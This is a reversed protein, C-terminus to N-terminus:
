LILQLFFTFILLFYYQYQKQSFSYRSIHHTNQNDGGNILLNLNNFSVDGLILDKDNDGDIDIAM